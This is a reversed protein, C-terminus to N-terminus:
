YITHTFGLLFLLDQSSLPVLASLVTELFNEDYLLVVNVWYNM